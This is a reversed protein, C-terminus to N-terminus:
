SQYRVYLMAALSAIHSDIRGDHEVIAAREQYRERQEASLALVQAGIPTALVDWLDERYYEVIGELAKPGTIKGHKIALPKGRRWADIIVEAPSM